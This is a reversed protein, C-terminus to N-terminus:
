LIDLDVATKREVHWWLLCSHRYWREHIQLAKDNVFGKDHLLKGNEPFSMNERM